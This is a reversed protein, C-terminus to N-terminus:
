GKLLSKGLKKIKEIHGTETIFEGTTDQRQIKSVLLDLGQLAHSSSIRRALEFNDEYPDYNLEAIWPKTSDNFVGWNGSKDIVRVINTTFEFGPDTFNGLMLVPTDYAWALWSSGSSLGIHFEADRILAMAQYIEPSNGSYVEPLYSIHNGVSVVKYGLDKCKKILATWTKPKLVHKLRQSGANCITIYKEKVLRDPRLPVLHPKREILDVGFTHNQIDIMNTEKWIIPNAYNLRPNNAFEPLRSIGFCFAKGEDGVKRYQEENDLWSIKPYKAPNFIKKWNSLLFVQNLDEKEIWAQVVPIWALADGLATSAAKLAMSQGKYNLQVSALREDKYYLDIMWPCPYHIDVHFLTNPAINLSYVEDTWPNKATIRLLDVNPSAYVVRLGNLVQISLEIIPKNM